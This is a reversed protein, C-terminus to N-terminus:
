YHSPKIVLKSFNCFGRCHHLGPRVKGLAGGVVGEGGTGNECHDFTREAITSMGM